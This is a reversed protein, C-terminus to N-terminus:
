SRAVRLLRRHVTRVLRDLRTGAATCADTGDAREAAAAVLASRAAFLEPQLGALEAHSVGVDVAVEVVGTALRAAAAASVVQYEEADFRVSFRYSRVLGM